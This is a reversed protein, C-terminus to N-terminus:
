LPRRLNTRPHENDLRNQILNSWCYPTFIKTDGTYDNGAEDTVSLIEIKSEADPELPEGHLGRQGRSPPTHGYTITLTTETDGIEITHLFTHQM